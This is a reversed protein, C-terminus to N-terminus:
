AKRAAAINATQRTSPLECRAIAWEFGAFFGVAVCPGSLRESPCAFAPVRPTGGAGATVGVVTSGDGVGERARTYTNRPASPGIKERPMSERVSFIWRAPM